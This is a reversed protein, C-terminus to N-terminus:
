PCPRLSFECNCIGPDLDQIALSKEDKPRYQSYREWFELNRKIIGLRQFDTNSNQNPPKEM